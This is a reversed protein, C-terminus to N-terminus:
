GAGQPIIKWGKQADVHGLDLSISGLIHGKFVERVDQLTVLMDQSLGATITIAKHFEKNTTLVLESGAFVPILSAQRVGSRHNLLLLIVVSKARSSYTHIEYVERMGKLSCIRGRTGERILSQGAKWFMGM